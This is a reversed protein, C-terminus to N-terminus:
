RELSGSGLPRELWGAHSRSDFPVDSSHLNILYLPVRTTHVITRNRLITGKANYGQLKGCDRNTAAELWCYLMFREVTPGDM